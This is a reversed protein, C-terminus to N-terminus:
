TVAPIAIRKEDTRIKGNRSDPVMTGVTAIASVTLLVNSTVAVICFPQTKPVLVALLWGLMPVSFKPVRLAVAVLTSIALVLPPPDIIAVQVGPM